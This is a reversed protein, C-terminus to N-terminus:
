KGSACHLTRPRTQGFGDRLPPNSFRVNGTAYPRTQFGGRGCCRVGRFVPQVQAFVSCDVCCAACAISLSM